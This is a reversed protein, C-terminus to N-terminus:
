LRRDFYMEQKNVSDIFIIKTSDRTLQARNFVGQEFFSELYFQVCIILRMPTMSTSFFVKSNKHNKPFFSSIKTIPTTQKKKRCIKVVLHSM